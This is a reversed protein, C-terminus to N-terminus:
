GPGDLFGKVGAGQEAKLLYSLESFVEPFLFDSM